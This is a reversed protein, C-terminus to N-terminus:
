RIVGKDVLSEGALRVHKQIEERLPPYYHETVFSLFELLIATLYGYREVSKEMLLM